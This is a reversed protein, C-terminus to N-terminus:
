LNCFLERQAAWCAQARTLELVGARNGTLKGPKVASLDDADGTGCHIFQVERAACKSIDLWKGSSKRSRTPRRDRHFIRLSHDFAYRYSLSSAMTIFILGASGAFWM